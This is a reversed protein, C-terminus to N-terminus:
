KGKRDRESIEALAMAAEMDCNRARAIDGISIVGVLAGNDTVPLRRIRHEAMVAAAERVDAGAPVTVVNRTMVDAIATDNPDNDAAVCRMVIDRDTVIGKVQGANNTVLLSGINYHKLLRSAEAASGQPSVSIVNKNMLQSVLM